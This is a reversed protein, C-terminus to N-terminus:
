CFIRLLFRFLDQRIIEFILKNFLLCVKSLPFGNIEFLIMIALLINIFMKM